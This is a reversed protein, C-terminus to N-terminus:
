GSKPSTAINFHDGVGSTQDCRDIHGHDGIRVGPVAVLEVYEARHAFELAATNCSNVDFVLFKRLFATMEYALLDDRALIVLFLNAGGDRGATIRM